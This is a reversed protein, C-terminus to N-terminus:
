QFIASPKWMSLCEFAVASDGLVGLCVRLLAPMRCKEADIEHEEAARRNCKVNAIKSTSAWSSQPSLVNSSIATM